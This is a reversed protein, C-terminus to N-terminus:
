YFNEMLVPLIVKGAKHADELNGKSNEIYNRSIFCIFIQCKEIAIDDDKWCSFGISNLTNFLLSITSNESDKQDYSIYIDYYNYM